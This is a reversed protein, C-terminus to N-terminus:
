IKLAYKPMKFHMHAHMNQPKLHMVIRLKTILISMKFHSTNM